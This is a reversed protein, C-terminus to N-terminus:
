RRIWRQEKTEVNVFLIDDPLRKVALWKEHDFGEKNLLIKEQKKLKRPHKM